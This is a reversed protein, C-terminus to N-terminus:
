SSTSLPAGSDIVRIDFLSAKSFKKPYGSGPISMDAFIPVNKRGSRSGSLEGVLAPRWSASAVSSAGLQQSRGELLSAVRQPAQGSVAGLSRTKARVDVPQLQLLRSKRFGDKSPALMLTSAESALISRGAPRSMESASDPNIPRNKYM